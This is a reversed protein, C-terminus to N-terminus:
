QAPLIKLKYNVAQKGPDVLEFTIHVPRNSPMLSQTTIDAGLYESPSFRRHAIPQLDIDQFILEIDPFPQEFPARNRLITDVKIAKPETPHLMAKLKETAILKHNQRSPLQCGALKCALTLPPRSWSQQSLHEINIYAYEILLALTLSLSGLRYFWIFLRDKFSHEELWNEDDQLDRELELAQDTLPADISLYEESANQTTKTSFNLTPNEDELILFATKQDNNGNDLDKNDLTKSNLDKSDLDEDNLAKRKSDAENKVENLAEKTTQDIESLLADAWSEDRASEEQNKEPSGLTGPSVLPSADPIQPANKPLNIISDSLDGEFTLPTPQPVSVQNPPPAPTKPLSIEGELQELLTKAWTQSDQYADEPNDPAQQQTNQNSSLTDQLKQYMEDINDALGNQWEDQLPPPQTKPQTAPQSINDVSPLKDANLINKHAKFVKMCSGCRVFGGAAEIQHPHLKFLTNCHPCRTLLQNTM